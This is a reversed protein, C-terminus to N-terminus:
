FFVESATYFESRNVDQEVVNKKDTEIQQMLSKRTIGELTSSTTNPKNIKWKLINM